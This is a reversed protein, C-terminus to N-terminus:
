PTCGLAGIVIDRLRPLHGSWDTADAIKLEDLMPGTFGSVLVRRGTARANWFKSPFVAGPFDPHGAVLHVEADWYSRRLGEVDAIPPLALIWDPLGAIGKGDGRMTISYGQSRVEECLALFSPLHHPWGLNGSYLATRPKPPRPAGLDMTPWNRVITVNPGDFALNSAVKVVHHWARLERDWFRSLLALIGSPPDWIGRILQPYYDQLWYIGTAGKRRIVRHLSLTTPPASTVVVVDGPEVCEAVYRAFARKVSVYERATSLLSSRRGEFHLVRRIPTRPEPRGGGRYRGTGGVLVAPWGAATVADALNESYIGTPADDPWLFQSLVHV